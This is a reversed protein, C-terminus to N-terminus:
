IDQALHEIEQERDRLHYNSSNQRFICYIVLLETIVLALDSM